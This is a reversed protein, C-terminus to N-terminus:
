NQFHRHIQYTILNNSNYNYWFKPNKRIFELGYDNTFKNLKYHM